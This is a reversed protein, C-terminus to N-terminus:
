PGVGKARCWDRLVDDYDATTMWSFQMDAVWLTAQGGADRAVCRVDRLDVSTVTSGGACTYEVIPFQAPM